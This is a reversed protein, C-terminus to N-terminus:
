HIRTSLKRAISLLETKKNEEVDVKKMFEIAKNHYNSIKNAVEAPINLQNYINKVSIIKENRDFDKKEMWKKLEKKQAPNADALAKILLYTKKNAIIDGGIKKGFTDINGFSDLYDDQLQFALGINIGFQYLYEANQKNSGAILAGMKIAAAILVSTKLYIMNLYDDETVNLKAEFYMDYQQGECVELATQNFLSMLYKLDNSDTQIIYKYALIFMADGSLIATNENWKKHVTLQNRRMDAKDMIDDHLLTFNHFIEIGIAATMAKEVDEKFLNYGLLTLVPRLRKGGAKLTYLIPNYLNEPEALIKEKSLARNFKELLQSYSYM